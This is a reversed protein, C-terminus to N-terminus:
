FHVPRYTDEPLWDSPYVRLSSSWRWVAPLRVLQDGVVIPRTNSQTCGTPKTQTTYGAARLAEVQPLDLRYVLCHETYFPRVFQVWGGCHVLHHLQDDSVELKLTAKVELLRQLTDGVWVGSQHQHGGHELVFGSEQPVKQRTTDLRAFDCTKTSDILYGVFNDEKKIARLSSLIQVRSVSGTSLLNKLLAGEKPHEPQQPWKTEPQQFDRSPKISSKQIIRTM